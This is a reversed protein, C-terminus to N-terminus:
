CFKNGQNIKFRPMFLYIGRNLLVWQMYTVVYAETLILGLGLLSNEQTLHGGLAYFKTNLKLFKFYCSFMCIKPCIHKLQRYFRSM